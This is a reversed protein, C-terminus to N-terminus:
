PPTAFYDILWVLHKRSLPSLQVLPDARSNGAWMAYVGASNMDSWIPHLRRRAQPCVEAIHSALGAASAIQRARLVRANDAELM